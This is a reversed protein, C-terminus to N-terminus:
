EEGEQKPPFFLRRRVVLPWAALPIPALIGALLLMLWLAVRPDEVLASGIPLSAMDPLYMACLALWLFACWHGWLRLRVIGYATLLGFLGAAGHASLLLVGAAVRDFALGAISVHFGLRM